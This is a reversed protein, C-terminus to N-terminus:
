LTGPPIHIRGVSTQAEGAKGEPLHLFLQHKGQFGTRKEGSETVSPAPPCLSPPVQEAWELKRARLWTDQAPPSTKGEPRM